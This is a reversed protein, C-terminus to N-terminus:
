GETSKENKRHVGFVNKVPEYMSLSFPTVVLFCCYNTFFTEQMARRLSSLLILFTKKLPLRHINFNYCLKLHPVPSQFSSFAQHLHKAPILFRYFLHTIHSLSLCPLFPLFDKEIKIALWQFSDTFICLFSHLILTLSIPTFQNQTACSQPSQESSRFLM